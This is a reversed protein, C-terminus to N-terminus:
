SHGITGDAAFRDAHPFFEEYGAMGVKQYTRIDHRRLAVLKMRYKSSLASTHNAHSIMWALASRRKLRM